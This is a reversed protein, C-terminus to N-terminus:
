TLRQTLKCVITMTMTTTTATALAICLANTLAWVHSAGREM